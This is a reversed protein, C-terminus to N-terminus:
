KESLRVLKVRVQRYQSGGTGAKGYSSVVLLGSDAMKLSLFFYNLGMSDEQELTKRTFYM